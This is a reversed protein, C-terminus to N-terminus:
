QKIDCQNAFNNRGVPACVFFGFVFVAATIKGIGGWAVTFKYQM